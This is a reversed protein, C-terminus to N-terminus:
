ATRVRPDLLFSVTDVLFGAAIVCAAGFCCVAAVANVDGQGVSDLLYEGAGHWGFVKETFVASTLLLALSYGFYAVAPALATRLAHRVLARRRTLGKARATRVYDADVQDAMLNRQYRSYLAIQPLAVTLTPLVLHRSRDLLWAGAGGELGPTYEGTARLLEVGTGQNVWLAANQLSVAVVVVPVSILVFSVATAARDAPGHRRSGAWAGLLVGGVCGVVAGPLLLRVSVGIRRGLEETVPAGDWTRGFDGTAVGSVWVAYRQALPTADNLNYADLAADVVEAPPPPRRGEYNARPNLAGAALLYACSAAVFLLLLRGALRRLLFRAM